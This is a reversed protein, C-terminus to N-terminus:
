VDYDGKQRQRFGKIFYDYLDASFIGSKMFEKGFCAIVGSHKSFRLEKTLLLAESYFMSYYARSISFDYDLSAIMRKAAMLSRDAKNMLAKVEAQYKM